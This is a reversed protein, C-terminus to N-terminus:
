RGRAGAAQLEATVDVDWEVTEGDAVTRTIRLDERDRQRVVLTYTDPPVSGFEYWGSDDVKDRSGMLRSMVTLTSVRNVVPKGRGDLLTLDAIPISSRDVNTARLKLTAGRVIRLSVDVVQDELVAIDTAQGTELAKADARLDYTGPTLGNIEFRGDAGTTVPRSQMGLLDTLPNRRERRSRLDRNTYHIEAGAVAVGSGDVVIGTIRGALPVTVLVDQVPTVGDVQLGDVVAEGYRQAGDGGGRRGGRGMRNSATLRYTGAAVSRLRFAGDADTRAQNFGGQAILGILGESDLLDGDTAGLSVAIGEVPQGRSDLVRGTIESTPLDIDFRHEHVGAPIEVPMTTQMARGQFRSIQFLYSGPKIGTLQYRGDQGAAGARVGMGFVGERDSGLVTVLARPVPAGNERVVGHVLVGDESEDHIDLRTFRGQRVTVTKLRMNNMLDLMLNDTREDMRSKFVIYQGPPLGDIRYFGTRDTTGSKMAGAQLSFAVVMADPLPRMGLGTLQGEVGGGADLEIRIGDVPQGAVVEVDKASAKALDPHRATFRWKGPELSRIEFRGQSDSMASRRGGMSSMGLFDFDEPDINFDIPGRRRQERQRHASVQADGVPKGTGADVVVGRVWEGDRLTFTLEASAQGGAVEVEQADADLYGDARVRVRIKGPPVGRVEFRGEGDMVERWAGDMGGSGGRGEFSSGEALQVTGSRGGAMGGRAGGPGMRVQFGGRGRGGREADTAGSWGDAEGDARGGAASAAADAAGVPRSTAEVRFRPVPKGADDVVRGRVVAGRLLQVRLDPEDLQVGWRVATTYGPKSGTIVLRDGAMGRAVFRGDDGSTVEVRRIKLMMKLFDPDNPREFPRLEVTAGALPRDSEDVVMGAVTVGDGLRLELDEYVGGDVVAREEINSPALDDAAALFAVRGASVREVRFRGDQDTTIPETRGDASFLVRSVDLYVMAVNAGAVPKGDGDLARGAIVAGQHGRITVETVQAERVEIGHADELAMTPSAASIAYGAGPPVGPLDFRGQADATTELWRYQRETIQSLFANLGPRLSVVAGAAPGGDAGLVVGRVRGGPQARLEVGETFEGQALRATGPTRVFFGDSRGDLFVRGPPLGRIEFTGDPGSVASGLVEAPSANQEFLGGRFLGRFRSELREFSPMRRMARVEIGGLPRGTRGDVVVGRVGTDSRGDVVATRGADGDAATTVAAAPPIETAVADSHAAAPDVAVRGTGGPAPDGGFLLFGLVALLALVLIVVLTRQPM